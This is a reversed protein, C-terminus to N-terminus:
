HGGHLKDHAKDFDDENEVKELEDIAEKRKAEKEAAEKIAQAKQYDKYENWLGLLARLISILNGLWGFM